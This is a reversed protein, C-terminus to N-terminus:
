IYPPLFTHKKLAIQGHRYTSDDDDIYRCMDLYINDSPLSILSKGESPLSTLPTPISGRDAETHATGGSFMWQEVELIEKLRFDDGFGNM